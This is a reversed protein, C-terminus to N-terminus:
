EIKKETAFQKKIETDRYGQRERERVIKRM